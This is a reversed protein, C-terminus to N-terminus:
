WAPLGASNDLLGADACFSEFDRDDRFYPPWDRGERRETIVNASLGNIRIASVNEAEVSFYYREFTDIQKFPHMEESASGTFLLKVASCSLVSSGRDLGNTELDFVIVPDSRHKQMLSLLDHKSYYRNFGNM